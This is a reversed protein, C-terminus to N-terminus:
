NEEVIVPAVLIVAIPDVIALDKNFLPLWSPMYACDVVADVFHVVRETRHLEQNALVVGHHFTPNWQAFMACVTASASSPAEHGLVVDTHHLVGPVPVGLRDHLHHEHSMQSVSADNTATLTDLHIELIVVELRENAHNAVLAAIESETNAGVLIIAMTAHILGPQGEAHCTVFVRVQGAHVFHHAVVGHRAHGPVVVLM